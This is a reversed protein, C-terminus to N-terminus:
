ADVNKKNQIERQFLIQKSFFFFNQKKTKQHKQSSM